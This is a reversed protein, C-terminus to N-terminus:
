LKNFMNSLETYLINLLPCEASTFGNDIIVDKIEAIIGSVEDTTLEITPFYDVKEKIEINM